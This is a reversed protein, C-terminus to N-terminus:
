RSSLWSCGSFFPFFPREAAAAGDLEEEMHLLDEFFLRGIFDVADVVEKDLLDDFREFGELDLAETDLLLDELFCPVSAEIVLLDEEFFRLPEFCSLDARM